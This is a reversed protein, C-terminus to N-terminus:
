ARQLEALNEIKAGDRVVGAAEENQIIHETEVVALPSLKGQRNYEDRQEKTPCWSAIM